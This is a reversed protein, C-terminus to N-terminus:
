SWHEKLFRLDRLANAYMEEIDEGPLNTGETFELAISGAFGEERMIHLCEKVFPPKRDLRLCNRDDDRLQIHAHTVRPGFHRFWGKLVELDPRLPHVLVEFREPDLRGFFEAAAEPEEIVTGPHCECLPKVGEPFLDGWERTNKLYVELLSPDKGVNFKVRGAGFLATLEVARERDMEGDDLSCYSNFIEIPLASAKLREIEEPPSLAAHNEWLEIGDFGDAAFRDIWDSVLFTPRKGSKKDHRNKELLITGIYIM